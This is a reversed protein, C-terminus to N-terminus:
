TVKEPDLGNARCMADISEYCPHGGDTVRDLMARDPDYLMLFRRLRISPLDRARQDLLWGRCLTGDNLHCGFTGGFIPDRDARLLREFNTAHWVGVPVDRRYPCTACPVAPLTPTEPREARGRAQEIKAVARNRADLDLNPVPRSAVRGEQLRIADDLLHLTRTEPDRLGGRAVEWGEQLLWDLASHPNV